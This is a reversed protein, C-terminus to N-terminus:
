GFVVGTARAARWLPHGTPVPRSRGAVTALPVDVVEDGQLAVMVGFRGDHVRLAAEVGFRTALVRDYATPVGGRQLHGLLTARVEGGLRAELAQQLWVGVGGLRVVGPDAPAAQTVMAQGAAHAGEAICVLTSGPDRARLRCTDAVLDLDFPHEPLLIVDAGGALGGELAIWGAHRGMTELVMVRRHSRATTALRDLADAVVAVASDFGFSRQNGVIDNDITKPVGVVPVGHEAVFRQAITMTGDGGIAVLAQLGHRALTGLARASVDAGGEASWHFPDARNHAGLITGGEALLGGVTAADLPRVRDEVLGAFGREIGSVRMGAALLPLTVARIVANLGPCDGGGTLVGVHM